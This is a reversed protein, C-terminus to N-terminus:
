AAPGVGSAFPLGMEATARALEEATLEGHEAEWADLFEALAEARLRAAAAGALWGSLGRGSRQAAARVADGLDPDFSVSLKDVKVPVAYWPRVYWLIFSRRPRLGADARLDLEPAALTVHPISSRPHSIPLGTPVHGDRLQRGRRRPRPGKSKCGLGRAEMFTHFGHVTALM